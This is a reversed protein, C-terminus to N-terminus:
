NKVRVVVQCLVSHYSPVIASHDKDKEVCAVLAGIPQWGEKVASSVLIQLEETTEGKIIKYDTITNMILIGSCECAAM